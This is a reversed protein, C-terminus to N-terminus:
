DSGLCTQKTMMGATLSNRYLTQSLVSNDTSPFDCKYPPDIDGILNAKGRLDVFGM